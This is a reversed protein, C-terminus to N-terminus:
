RAGGVSEAGTHEAGSTTPNGTQQLPPMVAGGTQNEAYVRANLDDLLESLKQPTVHGYFEGDIEVLPAWECAGMCTSYPYFTIQKDYTTEGGGVGLRESIMRRLKTTGVTYCGSGECLFIKHTGPKRFKFISYFTLSSYIQMPTLGLEHAVQYCASENIYGFDELIEQFVPMLAEEPTVDRHKNCIATVVLPDIDRAVAHHMSEVESM